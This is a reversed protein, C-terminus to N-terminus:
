GNRTVAVEGSEIVYFLDGAGGEAVVVTGADVTLLVTRRALAELTPADLPAFLTVGRLLELGDAPRLSTDLRRLHGFGPLVLLCIAVVLIALGTRLGVTSILLPMLLAGLAM